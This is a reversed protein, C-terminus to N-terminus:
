ESDSSDEALFHYTELMQKALDSYEARRQVIKYIEKKNDNGIHPHLLFQNCKELLKEDSIEHEINEKCKKITEQKYKRYTNKLNEPAYELNALQDFCTIHDTYYDMNYFNVPTFYNFHMNVANLLWLSLKKCEEYDKSQAYLEIAKKESNVANLFDTTAVLCIAKLHYLVAEDQTHKLANDIELLAGIHNRNAELCLAKLYFLEWDNQVVSLAKDVLSLTNSIDGNKYAQLAMNKLYGVDDMENIEDYGNYEDDFDYETNEWFFAEGMEIYESIIKEYENQLPMYLEKNEQLATFLIPINFKLDNPYDVMKKQLREIFNCFSNIEELETNGMFDKLLARLIKMNSLIDTGQRRIITSIAVKLDSIYKTNTFSTDTEIIQNKQLLTIIFEIHELMIKENEESLKEKGFLSTYVALALTYSDSYNEEFSESEILYPDIRKMLNLFMMVSTNNKDIDIKEFWKCFAQKDYLIKIGDDNQEVLNQLAEYLAKM